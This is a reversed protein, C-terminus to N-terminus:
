DPLLSPAMNSHSKELLASRSTANSSTQVISTTANAQDVPSDQDDRFRREADRSM